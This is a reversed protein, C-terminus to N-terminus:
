GNNVKLPIAGFRGIKYLTELNFDKKLGEFDCACFLETIGDKKELFWLTYIDFNNIIVPSHSACILQGKSDKFLNIIYEVILFHLHSDIEDIIYVGGNEIIDIIEFIKYFLKKTGESEFEFTLLFSDNSLKHKFLLKENKKNNTIDDIIKNKIIEPLNNDKLIQNIIKEKEVESLEITEFYFDMIETDAIKLINLVKEKYNSDIIKKAVIKYHLKKEEDYGTFKVNSIVKYEYIEKAYIQTEFRSLFSVISVNKPLDKLSTEKMDRLHLIKLGKREYIPYKFRNKELKEYVVEKKNIELTYKYLNNNVVFEMYFKSNNDNNAFTQIPIEEDPKLSFFSDKIFWFLFSIAKLLTTKGSANSGFLAITSNSKLSKNISIDLEFSIEKYISFFNEVSFYKIM